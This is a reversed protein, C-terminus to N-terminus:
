FEAVNTSQTNALLTVQLAPRLTDLLDLLRELVHFMDHQLSVNGNCAHSPKIAHSTADSPYCLPQALEMWLRRGGFLTAGDQQHIKSQITCNQTGAYRRHISNHTPYTASMDVFIIPAQSMLKETSGAFLFPGHLWGTFYSILSCSRVYYRCCVGCVMFPISRCSSYIELQVQNKKFKPHKM